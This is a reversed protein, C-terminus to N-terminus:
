NKVAIECIYDTLMLTSVEDRTCPGQKYQLLKPDLNLIYRNCVDVLSRGTGVHEAVKVWSIAGKRGQGAYVKVGEM